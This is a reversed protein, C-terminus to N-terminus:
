RLKQHKVKYESLGCICQAGVFLNGLYNMDTCVRNIDQSETWQTKSLPYPPM